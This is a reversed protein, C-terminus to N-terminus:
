TRPAWARTRREMMVMARTPTTTPPEPSAASLLLSREPCLAPTTSSMMLTHGDPPSNLIYDAAIQNNGGPKNEVVAQQGWVKSFRQALARGIIDTVGGAPAPSVITITKSPYTQAAAPLVLSLASALAVAVGFAVLYAIALFRLDRLAALRFPAVIGALWVPAALPNTYLLQELAFAGANQLVGASELFGRRFYLAALANAKDAASMAIRDYVPLLTAFVDIEEVRLLAELATLATIAAAAPLPEDGATGDLTDAWATFFVLDAASVVETLRGAAARVAATDGAPITTVGERAGLGCAATAIVPM